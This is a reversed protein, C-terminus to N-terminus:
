LYVTELAHRTRTRLLSGNIYGRRAAALLCIVSAFLVCCALWGQFGKAQKTLKTRIPSGDVGATKKWKNFEPLLNESAGALVYNKKFKRAINLVYVKKNCRM